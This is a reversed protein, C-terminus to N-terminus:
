FFQNQPCFEFCCYPQRANEILELGVGLGFINDDFKNYKLDYTCVCDLTCYHIAITRVSVRTLTQSM